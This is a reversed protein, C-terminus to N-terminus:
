KFHSNKGGNCCYADHLMKNSCYTYVSTDCLPCGKAGAVPYAGGPGGPGVPGVPAVPANPYGGKLLSNILGGGIESIM